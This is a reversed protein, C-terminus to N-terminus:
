SGVQEGLFEGLRAYLLRLERDELLVAVWCRDNVFSLEVGQQFPDGRNSYRVTLRDEGEAFELPRVKSQDIKM